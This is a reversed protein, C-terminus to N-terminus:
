LLAGQSPEAEAHNEPYCAPWCPDIVKNPDVKRFYAQLNRCQEARWLVQQKHLEGVDQENLWPTLRGIKVAVRAAAIADSLADHAKAPGPVGYTECLMELKRGGKRRRDVHKDLVYPDIVPVSLGLERVVDRFPKVGHRLADYHLLTLDYAANMIVIPHTVRERRPYRASDVDATILDVLAGIVSAVGEKADIGDAAAQETTIGHVQISEEPIEVGPNILLEFGGGNDFLEPRHNDAVLLVAAASVPRALKPNRHTSEFDFAIMPRESWWPIVDPWAPEEPDPIAEASM